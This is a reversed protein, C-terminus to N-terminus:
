ASALHQARATNCCVVHVGRARAMDARQSLGPVPYMAWHETAPGARQKAGTWQAAPRARQAGGDGGVRGPRSARAASGVVKERIWGGTAAVRQRREKVRYRITRRRAKCVEAILPRDDEDAEASAAQTCM